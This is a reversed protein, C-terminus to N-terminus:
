TYPISSEFDLLIFALLLLSDKILAIVYGGDLNIKDDFVWLM